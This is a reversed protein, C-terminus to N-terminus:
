CHPHLCPSGRRPRISVSLPPGILLVPSVHTGIGGRRARGRGRAFRLVRRREPVGGRQGTPDLAAPLVVPAIVAGEVRGVRTTLQAVRLQGGRPAVLDVQQVHEGVRGAGPQVHAVRQAEDAGVHQAAVQPHGAVVHQVRHAEVGEPQGGLLVRHLGARVRPRRGLRVDLAVAGLQVLQSQRV